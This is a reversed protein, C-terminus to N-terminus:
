FLVFGTPALLLLFFVLLAIWKWGFEQPSDGAM